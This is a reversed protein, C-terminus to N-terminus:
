QAAANFAALTAVSKLSAAFARARPAQDAILGALYTNLDFGAVSFSDLPITATYAPAEAARQGVMITAGTAPDVQRPTIQIAIDGGPLANPAQQVKVVVTEGTDLLFCHDRAADTNPVTANTMGM